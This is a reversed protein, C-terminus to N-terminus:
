VGSTVNVDGSGVQVNIVNKASPDNELGQLTVDGSGTETILKYSGQPVTVNVDGSGAEATVSNPTSLVVNADGSDVKATVAGGAHIVQLDGSNAEADVTGKAELVKLEGSTTRVKVPGTADTVTLDGSGVEIDTAGVASLRMDGSGLRGRVTVGPATKIEYSVSCRMSCSADITLTTGDLRYSEGPNSSRQVIRTITTETVPGTTIVVDGTEGGVVIDTIKTKETDHYTMRAGIVGACGTLTTTAAVVLALVGARRFLTTTM